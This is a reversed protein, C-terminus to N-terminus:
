FGGSTLRVSLKRTAAGQKVQLIEEELIAAKTVYYFGM